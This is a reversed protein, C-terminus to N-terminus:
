NPKDFCNLKREFTEAPLDPNIKISDLQVNMVGDLKISFPLSKITALLIFSPSSCQVLSPAAGTILCRVINM